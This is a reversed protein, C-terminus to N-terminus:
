KEVEAEANIAIGVPATRWVGQSTKRYYTKDLIGACFLIKGFGFDKVHELTVLIDGDVDITEGFTVNIQSVNKMAMKIYIPDKVISEFVNKDLVKYINLRYFISDYSCYAVNINIRKIRASKKVKMLIGMEYGLKNEKFGTTVRRFESNVGLTKPKFIRNRVVIESIEYTKEKLYVRGDGNKLDSVKVYYPEHGICSFLLSDNDYKKEVVLSFRGEKNSVTGVDKNPIGINVYSLPMENGKNLTIGVVRQGYAENILQLCIVILMIRMMTLLKFFLITFINQYTFLIKEYFIPIVLM